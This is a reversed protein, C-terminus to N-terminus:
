LSLLALGAGAVPSVDHSGCKADDGCDEQEEGGETGQGTAMAVVEEAPVVATVTVGSM